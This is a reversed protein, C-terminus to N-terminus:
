MKIVKSMSTVELSFLQIIKVFYPNVLFLYPFFMDPTRYVNLISACKHFMQSISPSIRVSFFAMLLLWLGGAFHNMVFILRVGSHSKKLGCLVSRGKM